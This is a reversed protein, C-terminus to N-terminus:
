NYYYRTTYTDGSPSEVTTSAAPKNAANYTYTNSHLTTAPPTATNVDTQVLANNEGVWNDFGLLAGEVGLRSPNMKSDYTYTTTHALTWTSTMLDYNYQKASVLNSGAYTYDTRYYPITMALPSTINEYYTASTINGAINYTYATSDMGPNGSITRPDPTTSYTYQGLNNRYFRTETSDAGGAGIPDVVVIRTVFASADRYLRIEGDYTNNDKGLLNVLRENSDYTFDISVSDAGDLQVMRTLQNANNTGTPSNVTAPDQLEAEKQCATLLSVAAALALLRTKM